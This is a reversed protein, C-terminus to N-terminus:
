HIISKQSYFLVDTEGSRYELRAALVLHDNWISYQAVKRGYDLLKKSFRFPREL